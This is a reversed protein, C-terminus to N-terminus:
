AGNTFRVKNEMVVKLPWRVECAKLVGGAKWKSLLLQKSGIPISSDFIQITDLKYTQIGLTQRDRNNRHLVPLVELGYSIQHPRGPYIKIQPSLGCIIYPNVTIESYSDDLRPENEHLESVPLTANEWGQNRFIRFTMPTDHHLTISADIVLRANSKLSLTAPCEAELAIYPKSRIREMYQSNDIVNKCTVSIRRAQLIQDLPLSLLIPELLEVTNLVRDIAKAMITSSFQLQADIATRLSLYPSSSCGLVQFDYLGVCRSVNCSSVRGIALYNLYPTIM